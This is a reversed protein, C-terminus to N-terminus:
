PVTLVDYGGKSLFDLKRLLECLNVPPIKAIEISLDPRKEKALEWPTKFEKYSNPRFLNFFLQYSYAKNMFNERSTFREIEYFEMEILNHVTEVDAQMRHAGPFITSHKQGPVSEIAVTYVSPNKAQWSGTYETGNDTQRTTKSLDAEHKQLHYNLYKAFLTAYTLSKEDAFGLYMLGTTVDRATYQVTFLNHKKMQIYYEPIDILDKTDEVIQQFLNYKKKVERLNQKTIYKKRRKRSSVGNARWIKRITRPSQTLDELKKIQEAGMRKYEYKLQTIKECEQKATANPSYHPRRSLDKLGGYGKEIWRKNWKRVTKATTKFDRATPKVGYKEVSRVMQLRLQRPDKCERMILYYNYPCM